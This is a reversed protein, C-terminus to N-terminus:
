DRQIIYQESAIEEIVTYHMKMYVKGSEIRKKLVKEEKIEAGQGLHQIMNKTSLSMGLQEAQATSLMEEKQRSALLYETKWSIPSSWDKISLVYDREDRVYEKFPIEGFGWMPISLPGINLYYRKKEEGTLVSHVRRLPFSLESEYWVEGWVKGKASVIQPHEETGIFGSVLIDGPQVFQFPKVQPQGEEVFIDYIIAKKNAVLHRPGTEEPLEPLTKEVVKLIARTGKFEFGVWTINPLEKMMKLKITQVDETQFKFKGPEVGVQELIDRALYEDEPLPLGEIEVVWIMASLVYMLCFFFIGGLFLGKRREIKHMFFPFGAKKQIRMRCGTEKLLMRLSLFDSLGVSLKLRQQDLRVINWVSLRHNMLRNIFRELFHGNIDLVVYGNWWHKLDENKM